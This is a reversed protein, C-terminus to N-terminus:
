VQEKRKSDDDNQFMEPNSRKNRHLRASASRRFEGEVEGNEQLRKAAMMEAATFRNPTMSGMRMNHMANQRSQQQKPKPVNMYSSPVFPKRPSPTPFYQQLEENADAQSDHPSPQHQQGYQHAIQQPTMPPYPNLQQSMQLPDQLPQGYQHMNNLQQQRSPSRSEGPGHHEQRLSMRRMKENYDDNWDQPFHPRQEISSKPRPPQQKPGSRHRAYRNPTGSNIGQQQPPLQADEMGHMELFDASHPRMHRPQQPNFNGDRMNHFLVENDNGFDNQNHGSAVSSRVMGQNMNYMQGNYVDEYEMKPPPPPRQGAAVLRARAYAEPTRREQPLRRPLQPYYQMNTDEVVAQNAGRPRHYTGRAMVPQQMPEDFGGNDREPSPSDRDRSSSNLRRPKPPANAYLPQRTIPHMMVEDHHYTKPNYIYADGNASHMQHIAPPHQHQHRYFLQQQQMLMRHDPSTPSNTKSSPSESQLISALSLANMWQLMSEKSEAAFFYTRMNQHEAKFAFKKNTENVPSIKYSPLVISGLVKNEEPSKYYFLCYESLVFWRKKWLMLGDSGQKFLWGSLTM